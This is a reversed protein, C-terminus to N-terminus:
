LKLLQSRDLPPVENSQNFEEEDVPNELKVVWKKELSFWKDNRTELTACM